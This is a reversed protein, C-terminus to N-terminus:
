VTEEAPLQLTDCLSADLTASAAIHRRARHLHAIEAPTVAGDALVADLLSLGERDAQEATYAQAAALRLAPALEHAYLDRHAANHALARYDGLQRFRAASARLARGLRALVAGLGRPPPANEPPAVVPPVAVANKPPPPLAPPM